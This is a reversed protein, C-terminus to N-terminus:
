KGEERRLWAILASALAAGAVDMGLDIMTDRRSGIIGIAWEFLEWLVGLVVGLILLVFWPSANGAFVRRGAAVRGIGAVVAFSTYFHVAEDFVTEEHWLTLLYGGSNVLVAGALLALYFWGTTLIRIM